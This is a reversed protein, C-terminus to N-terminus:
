DLKESGSDVIIGKNNTKYYTDDSDKINKKNKMLKGSTSILYTEDRTPLHSTNPAKRPM